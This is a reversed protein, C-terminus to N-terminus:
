DLFMKIAHQNTQLLRGRGGVNELIVISLPFNLGILFVTADKFFM